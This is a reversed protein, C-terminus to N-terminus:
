TTHVDDDDAADAPDCPAPADGHEVTMAVAHLLSRFAVQDEPALVQLLQEDVHALREDLLGLRELGAPTLVVHRARRDAPDAQREVLGASALDDVLYTMVSRDVGVRQGLAQQSCPLEHAAASLLQYGRPGGPLDALATAASRAYSRLVTGLAWGLNHEVSADASGHSPLRSGDCPPTAATRTPDSASTM